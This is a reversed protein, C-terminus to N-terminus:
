KIEILEKTPVINIHRTCFRCGTSHGRSTCGTVMCRIGGGHVFCHGGGQNFKDCGIFKCRSNEHNAGHARCTFKDQRQKTCGPIFCNYNGSHGRCMGNGGGAVLNMCSPSSCTMGYMNKRRRNFLKKVLQIKHPVCMVDNDLINTCKPAADVCAEFVITNYNKSRTRVM